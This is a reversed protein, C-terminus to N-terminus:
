VLFGDRYVRAQRYTELVFIAVIDSLAKANQNYAITHSGTTTRSKHFMYNSDIHSGTSKIHRFKGRKSCYDVGCSNQVHYDVTAASLCLM